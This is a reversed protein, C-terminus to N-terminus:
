RRSEGPLHVVLSKGKSYRDALADGLFAWLEAESLNAILMTARMNAYRKDLVEFLIRKESDSNFGKGLEDIVLLDVNAFWNIKKATPENLAYCDNVSRVLDACTTYVPKRLKQVCENVVAAALHTKGVGVGGCLILSADSNSLVASILRSAAKKALAQPKADTEFNELTCAKYREPLLSSEQAKELRQRIEKQQAKLRERQDAAKICKGCRKDAPNLKPETHRGHTKCDIEVEHIKIM